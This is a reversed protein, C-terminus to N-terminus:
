LTRKQEGPCGMSGEDTGGERQGDMGEMAREWRTGEGTRKVTTESSSSSSGSM